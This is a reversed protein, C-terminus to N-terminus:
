LDGRGKVWHPRFKPPMRGEQAAERLEAFFKVLDERAKSMRDVAEAVAEAFELQGDVAAPDIGIVHILYEYQEILAEAYSGLGIVQSASWELWEGDDDPEFDATETVVHQWAPTTVGGAGAAIVLNGSRRQARRGASGTPKGPGALPAPGPPTEPGAPPPEPPPEPRASPPPPAAQVPRIMIELDPDASREQVIAAMQDWTDVTTQVTDTGPMLHRGSRSRLQIEYPGAPPLWSLDPPQPRQGPAAARTVKRWGWGAGARVGRGGAKVGRWGISRAPRHAVLRTVTFLAATLLAWMAAGGALGPGAATLTLHQWLCLGLSAAACLALWAPWRRRTGPAAALPGTGPPGSPGPPDPVARIAPQPGTGAGRRSAPRRRNRPAATM